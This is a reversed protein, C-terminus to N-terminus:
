STSTISVKANFNSPIIILVNAIVMGVLILMFSEFGFNNTQTSNYICIFALGYNLSYSAVIVVALIKKQEKMYFFFLRTSLYYKELIEYEFRVIDDIDHHDAILYEITGLAKSEASHDSKHYFDFRNSRMFEKRIINICASSPSEQFYEEPIRKICLDKAFHRRLNVSYKEDIVYLLRVSLGCSDLIEHLWCQLEMQNLWFYTLLMSLAFVLVYALLRDLETLVSWQNGQNALDIAVKPEYQSWLKCGTRGMERAFERYLIRMRDARHEVFALVFHYASLTLSISGISVLILSRTAMLRWWDTRIAPLCEDLYDQLVKNRISTPNYLHTSSSGSLFSSKSGRDHRSPYCDIYDAREPTPELRRMSTTDQMFNCWSDNLDALLNKLQSQLTNTTTIPAVMFMLLSHQFPRIFNWIPLVTGILVVGFVVTTYTSQTVPDVLNISGYYKSLYPACLKFLPLRSMDYYLVNDPSLRTCNTSLCAFKYLVNNSNNYRVAVLNSRLNRRDVHNYDFAQICVDKALHFLYLCVLVTTWCRTKSKISNQSFHDLENNTKGISRFKRGTGHYSSNAEYSSLQDLYKESFSPINNLIFMLRKIYYCAELYKESYM